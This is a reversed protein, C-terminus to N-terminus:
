VFVVMLSNSVHGCESVLDGRGVVVFVEEVLNEGLGVARLAYYATLTGSVSRHLLRNVVCDVTHLTKLVFRQM